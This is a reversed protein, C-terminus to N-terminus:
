IKIKGGGVSKHNNLMYYYKCKGVEERFIAFKSLIKNKFEEKWCQM